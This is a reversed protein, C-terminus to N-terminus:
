VIASKTPAPAVMTDNFQNARMQPYLMMGCLAVLFVGSFAMVVGASTWGALIEAGSWLQFGHTLLLALLGLGRHASTAVPMNVRRSVLVLIPQLLFLGFVIWGIVGHTSALTSHGHGDDSGHGETRILAIGVIFFVFVFSNRISLFYGRPSSMDLPEDNMIRNSFTAALAHMSLIGGVSLLMCFGHAIRADQVDEDSTGSGLATESLACTAAIVKIVLLSCRM